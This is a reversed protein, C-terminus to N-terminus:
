RTGLSIASGLMAAVQDRASETLRKRDHLTMGTTPIPDGILLRVHGAHIVASGMPLIERTGIIALPVVPAQAKIALYAAGDKFEHLEGDITRGGEPFILLSIGKAQILEAARSLTRLSSRPDERPVPIHGATTLHWGLFPIKFLGKKALFRFQVPISSFVVPTDMYSLHNAVFVYSGHTDLKELGDVRVRTRALWLLSRAWRRGQEIQARQSSGFLSLILNVTGFGITSLAMTPVVILWTWISDM